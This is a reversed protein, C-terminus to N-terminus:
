PQDAECYPTGKATYVEAAKGCTVCVNQETDINVTAGEPVDGAQLRAALGPKAKAAPKAAAKATPAMVGTVKLVMGSGDKKPELNLVVRCPKDILISTRFPEGEGPMESPAIVSTWAYLKTKKNWVPNAWALKSAPTGDENQYGPITFTFLLQTDAGEPFKNEVSTIDTIIADYVGPEFDYFNSTTEEIVIDTTM